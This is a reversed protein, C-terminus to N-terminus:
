PAPPAADAADAELRLNDALQRAAASSLNVVIARQGNTQIDVTVTAESGANKRPVGNLDIRVAPPPTVPAAAGIDIRKM